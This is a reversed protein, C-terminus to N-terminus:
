EPVSPFTFEFNDELGKGGTFLSSEVSIGLMSSALKALQTFTAFGGLQSSFNIIYQQGIPFCLLYSTDGTKKLGKHGARYKSEILQIQSLECIAIKIKHLPFEVESSLIDKKIIEHAPGLICVVQIIVIAFFFCFVLISLTNNKLALQIIVTFVFFICSCFVIAAIHHKKNQRIIIHADTYIIEYSFYRTLAISSNWASIFDLKNM